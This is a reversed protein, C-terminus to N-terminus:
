ILIIRVFFYGIKREMAGVFFASVYYKDKNADVLKRYRSPMTEYNTTDKLRREAEDEFGPVFVSGIRGTGSQALNDTVFQDEDVPAPVDETKSPAAKAAKTPKANAKASTKTAERKNTNKKPAAFVDGATLGALVVLMMLSALKKVIMDKGKKGGNNLVFWAAADRAPRLGM